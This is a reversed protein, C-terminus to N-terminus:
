GGVVYIRVAGSTCYVVTDQKTTHGIIRSMSLFEVPLTLTAGGSVTVSVWGSRLWMGVEASNEGSTEEIVISNIGQWNALDTAATIVGNAALAEEYARGEGTEIVKTNALMFVLAMLAGAGVLRDKWRTNM